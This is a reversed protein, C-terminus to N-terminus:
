LKEVEFYVNYFHILPFFFFTWALIIWPDFFFTKGQEEQATECTNKTIFNRVIAKFPIMM